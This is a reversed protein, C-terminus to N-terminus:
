AAEETSLSEIFRQISSLKWAVARAGLRIPKPFSGNKMDDYIASKSKGTMDIVDPLRLLKEIM